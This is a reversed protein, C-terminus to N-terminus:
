SIVPPWIQLHDMPKDALMKEGTKRFGVKEYLRRAAPNAKEVLLGLTLGQKEVYEKVLHQLLSRGIGRGQLKPDVGICDIYFEGAQTEDEPQFSKQTHASIYRAVPKRLEALLAGDYVIAAGVIEGDLCAVCANRYSYQNGETSVLHHMFDFAAGADRKGLFEYVIEEMALLLLAAAKASHHHEAKRIELKMSVFNPLPTAEM